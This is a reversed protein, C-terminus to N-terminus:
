GVFWGPNSPYTNDPKFKRKPNQASDQAPVEQMPDPDGLRALQLHKQTQLTWPSRNWRRIWINSGPRFCLEFITALLVPFCCFLLLSVPGVRVCRACLYVIHVCSSITISLTHKQNQHWGHENTKEKNNNKRTTPGGLYCYMFVHRHLLASGVSVLVM